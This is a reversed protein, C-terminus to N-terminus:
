AKSWLAGTWVIFRKNPFEHMKAKLANYQLKYNEESKVSSAINPYGINATVSSQSANSGFSSTM